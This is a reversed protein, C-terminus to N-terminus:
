RHMSVQRAPFQLRFAQYALYTVHCRLAQKAPSMFDSPRKLLPCLAEPRNLLLCPAQFGTYCTVCLRSAAHESSEAVGRCAAHMGCVDFVPRQAVQGCNAPNMSPWWVNWPCRQM